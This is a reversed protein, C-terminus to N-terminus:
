EGGQGLTAAREFIGNVQEAVLDGQNQQNPESAGAGGYGRLGSAGNPAARVVYEFAKLFDGGARTLIDNFLQNDDGNNTSVWYFAPELPLVLAAEGLDSIM